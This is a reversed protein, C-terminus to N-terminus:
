DALHTSVLSHIKQLLHESPIPKYLVLNAGAELATAQLHVYPLCTHVLVPTTNKETQRLWTLFSMGDMVPLLLELIILQVQHLKLQEMAEKGDAAIVVHFGSSSLHMKLLQCLIADQEVILVTIPTHTRDRM